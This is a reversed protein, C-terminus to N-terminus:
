EGKHKIMLDFMQRYNEKAKECIQSEELKKQHERLEKIGFIQHPYIIGKGRDILYKNPIRGMLAKGRYVSDDRKLSLIKEAWSNWEATEEPLEYGSKLMEAYRSHPVVNLKRVFVEGGAKILRDMVRYTEKIDDVTETPHGIIFDLKVNIGMKVGAETIKLASEPDDASRKIIEKLIMKSGAQVGLIISRLGAVYLRPLVNDLWEPQNIFRPASYGGFFIHEKEKQSGLIQCFRKWFEVKDFAVNDTFSFFAIGYKQHLALMEAVVTEPSKKRAAQNKLCSTNCFGCRYYCGKGIELQSNTLARLYNYREMFTYNERSSRRLFEARQFSKELLPAPSKELDCVQYKGPLISRGDRRWVGEIQPWQSPPRSVLELFSKEGEGEVLVVPTELPLIDSIKHMIESAEVSAGAGGIIIPVNLEKIQRLVSFLLDIGNSLVSFGLMSDNAQYKIMEAIRSASASFLHDQYVIADMNMSKAIAALKYPGIGEEYQLKGEGPANKLDWFIIKKIM